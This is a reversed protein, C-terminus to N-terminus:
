KKNEKELATIRAELETTEVARRHAEVLGALAHGEGPTLEGKAVAELIAGSAQSLDASTEVKPLTIKVPSDKRPPCLRDLMARLVPGDGSLALEIAKQALADAQGDILAQVARTAHNRAGKPKGKPNGSVGPQFPRGRQKPESNESM